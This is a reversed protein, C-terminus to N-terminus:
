PSLRPLEPFDPEDRSYQSIQPEKPITAQGREKRVVKGNM